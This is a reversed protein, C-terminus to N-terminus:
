RGRLPPLGQPLAFISDWQLLLRSVEQPCDPTHSTVITNNFLVEGDEEDAYYIPELPQASFCPCHLSKEGFLTVRVGEYTFSLVHELYNDDLGPVHASFEEFESVYEAMTGLMKRKFDEWHEFGGRKMVWSFWNKVKGESCLGM